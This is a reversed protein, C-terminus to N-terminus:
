PKSDDPEGFVDPALKRLDVITPAGDNFIGLEYLEFDGRGQARLARRRSAQLTAFYVYPSTASGGNARFRAYEQCVIAHAKELSSPASVAM